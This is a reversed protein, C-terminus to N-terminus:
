PSSASRASASSSLSRICRVVEQRVAPLVPGCLGEGNRRPPYECFRTGDHVRRGVCADFALRTGTTGFLTFTREQRPLDGLWLSDARPGAEPLPGIAACTCCQITAPRCCITPRDGREVGCMTM